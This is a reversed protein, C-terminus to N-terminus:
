SQSAYKHIKDTCGQIFAPIALGLKNVAEEAEQLATAKTEGTCRRRACDALVRVREHAQFFFDHINRPNTAHTDDWGGLALAVEEGVGRLVRCRYSMLKTNGEEV